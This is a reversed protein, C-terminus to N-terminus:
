VWCVLDSGTDKGEGVNECVKRMDNILIFCRTRKEGFFSFLSSRRGSKDALSQGTSALQFFYSCIVVQKQQLLFLYTKKVCKM